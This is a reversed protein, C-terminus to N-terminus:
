RKSTDTQCESIASVINKNLAELKGYHEPGVLIGKTKVKFDILDEIAKAFAYPNVAM